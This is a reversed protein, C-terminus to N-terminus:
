QNEPYFNWFSNTLLRDGTVVRYISDSISEILLLYERKEGTRPEDIQKREVRFELSRTVVRRILEACDRANRVVLVGNAVGTALNVQIGLPHSEKLIDARRDYHERISQALRAELRGISFDEADCDESLWSRVEEDKWAASPDFVQLQELLIERRSRREGYLSTLQEVLKRTFAEDGVPVFAIVPKGQALTSALESDKGLTDSEQAFYLTCKARKLMLAESLGKDIREECYAQTPDFWRLKLTELAQNEEFIERTWEHVQLYEHRKRMSTAVYVDLHDSALYADHNRRGVEVIERRKEDMAQADQNEPDEELRLAIEKQVIYGLFYTDEGAIREDLHVAEHRAAFSAEDVPELALLHDRLREDNRSLRDFAHEVSGYLWLALMEFEAVGAEFAEVNRFASGIKYSPRQDVLYQFFAHGTALLQEAKELVGLSDKLPSPRGTLREILCDLKAESM